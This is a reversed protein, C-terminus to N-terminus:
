SRPDQVSHFLTYQAVVADMERERKKNRVAFVVSGLNKGGPNGRWLPSHALIFGERLQEQVTPNM